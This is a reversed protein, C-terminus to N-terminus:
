IKIMVAPYNVDFTGNESKMNQILEYHKILRTVEHAHDVQLRITKKIIEDGFIVDAYTTGQVEILNSHHSVASFSFRWLTEHTIMDLVNAGMKNIALLAEETDNEEILKIGFFCSGFLPWSKVIELYQAKAETASLPTVNEWLRRIYKMYNDPKKTFFPIIPKPLLGPMELEIPANNNGNARHLLTAISLLENLIEQHLLEQHFTFVTLYGELYDPIIQHFIIDIYLESDLRLEFNWVSRCFVLYYANENRELEAILDLIYENSELPMTYQDGEIICYLSFERCESEETIGMKRCISGIIDEVVSSASTPMTIQVGGPLFYIQERSLKGEMLANIESETPVNRRGGYKETQKLNDKCIEATAKEIRRDDQAAKDLYKMLYPMLSDSCKFFAAIFALLRWGRISSDHNLSKNNTTQKMLQCFLEDRLVQHHHCVVLITYVCEIERQHLGLPLDGMYRMIATFSDVALRNLYECDLKLLSTTIPFPSYKVKDTLEKWTWDTIHDRKGKKGTLYELIKVTGRLSGVNNIKPEDKPRSLDDRFHIMAYQLFSHREASAGTPKEKTFGDETSLSESSIFFTSNGKRCGAWALAGKEEVFAKM